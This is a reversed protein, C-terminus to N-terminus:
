VAICSPQWLKGSMLSIMIHLDLYFSSRSHLLSYHLEFIDM